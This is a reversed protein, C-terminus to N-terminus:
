RSPHNVYLTNPRQSVSPFTAMAVIVDHRDAFAHERAVDLPRGWAPVGDEEGCIVPLFYLVAYRRSPDFTKSLNAM